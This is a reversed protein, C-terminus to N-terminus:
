LWRNLSFQGIGGQLLPLQCGGGFFNILKTLCEQSLVPKQKTLTCFITTSDNTSLISTILADSAPSLECFMASLNWHPFVCASPIKLVLSFMKLSGVFQALLLVFLFCVSFYPLIFSSMRSHNKIVCKLCTGTLPGTIWCFARAILLLFLMLSKLAFLPYSSLKWTQKLM